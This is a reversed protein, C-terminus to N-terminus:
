GISFCIGDSVKLLGITPTLLFQSSMKAIIM